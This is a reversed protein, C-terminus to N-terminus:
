PQLCLITGVEDPFITEDDMTVTLVGWKEALSSPCQHIKEIIHPVSPLRWTVCVCGKAVEELLVVHHPLLLTDAVSDWLEDIYRFSQESIKLKVKVSLRKFLAPNPNPPPLLDGATTLLSSENESQYTSMYEKLKTVLKFGNLDQKYEQLKTQLDQNYRAFEKIVQQLLHYNLYNWLGQQAIEFFTEKLTMTPDLVSSVFSESQYLQVLFVQLTETTAPNERLTEFTKAVLSAFKIQIQEQNYTGLTSEDSRIEM